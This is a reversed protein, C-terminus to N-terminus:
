VAVPERRPQFVHIEDAVIDTSTRERGERDTYSRYRIKGSVAVESGKVCLREVIEALQNWAVVQHWETHSVREGNANKSFETTALSFRIMPVGKGVKRIEPDAGVNGILQVHNKLMKM